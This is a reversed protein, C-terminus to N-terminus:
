LGTGETLEVNAIRVLAHLMRYEGEFSRVAQTYM